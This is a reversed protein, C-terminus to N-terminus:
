PRPDGLEVERWSAGSAEGGGTGGRGGHGAPQVCYLQDGLLPGESQELTM